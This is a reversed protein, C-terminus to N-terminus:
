QVGREVIAYVMLILTIFMVAFLTGGTIAKTLDDRRHQSHQM